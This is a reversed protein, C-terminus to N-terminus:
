AASRSGPAASRNARDTLLGGIKRFARFSLEAQGLHFVLPRRLVSAFTTAVLQTVADNGYADLIRALTPALEAPPTRLLCTALLARVDDAQRWPIPRMPDHVTEFDFWRAVGGEVDVMVNEAMADGHTYGAAHLGVLAEVALAIARDRASADPETGELLAALTKGGLRPLVLTGDADVGISMGHVALYVRREREEWERQGLVRVGTGLVKFLAGGLALLLPAHFARRKRVRLEGDDVVIQVISYKGTRLLRGIGFAIGFWLREALARM